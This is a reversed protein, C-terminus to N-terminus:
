PLGVGYDCGTMVLAALVLGWVAFVRLINLTCRMSADRDNAIDRVAGARASGTQGDLAVGALRMLDASMGRTM